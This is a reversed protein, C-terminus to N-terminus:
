PVVTILVDNPNAHHRHAIHNAIIGGGVAAGVLIVWAAGGSIKDTEGLRLLLPSVAVAGLGAGIAGAQEEVSHDGPSRRIFLEITSVDSRPIVTRGKAHLQENSTHRVEIVLADPGIEIATGRIRISDPLVIQVDTGPIMRSLEDWTSRRETPRALLNPMSVALLVFTALIAVPRRTGVIKETPSNCMM